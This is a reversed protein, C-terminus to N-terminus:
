GILFLSNGLPPFKSNRILNEADYVTNEYQHYSEAYNVSARKM